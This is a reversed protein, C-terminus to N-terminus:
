TAEAVVVSLKSASCATTATKASSSPEQQQTSVRGDVARTLNPTPLLGSFPRETGAERLIAFREPALVAKWEDQTKSIPFESM